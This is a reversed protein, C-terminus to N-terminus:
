LCVQISINIVCGFIHLQYTVPVYDFVARKKTKSRFKRKTMTVRFESLLQPGNLDVICM